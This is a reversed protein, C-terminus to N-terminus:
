KVGQHNQYLEFKKNQNKSSFLIELWGLSDINEKEKLNNDYDTPFIDVIIESSSYIESVISKVIIQREITDFNHLIDKILLDIDDFLIRPKCDINIIIEKVREYLNKRSNKFRDFFGITKTQNM